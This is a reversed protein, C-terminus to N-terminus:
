LKRYITDPAWVPMPTAHAHIKEERDEKEREELGKERLKELWRERAAVGETPETTILVRASM